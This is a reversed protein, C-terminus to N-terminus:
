ETKESIIHDRLAVEEQWHRLQVGHRSEQEQLKKEGEAQKNGM